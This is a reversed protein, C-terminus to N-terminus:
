SVFTGFCINSGSTKHRETGRIEYGGGPLVLMSPRPRESIVTDQVMIELITDTGDCDHFPYIDKLHIKKFIM